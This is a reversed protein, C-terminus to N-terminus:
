NIHQKIVTETKELVEDFPLSNIKIPKHTTITIPSGLGLPFKGYKFVKWSNNITLPVIYGDKNYKTIVKLGNTAFKKPTGNRSRTGEPFIIAGWKKEHIRKSFRVLETIAQKSDKRNILAAGGHRLNFSVSPIGKGLEIKAVFKPAYKRFFWGIPPIDFTSQHNSVFILSANEPLIHKNIVRVKVGLILMSKVLFFNLCDVVKGHAKHGFVNLSLWQLPHFILLILFFVGIFIPSLLYSLVKM